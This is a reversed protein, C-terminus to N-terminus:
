KSKYFRWVEFIEDRSVEIRCHGTQPQLAHLEQRLIKMKQVLDRKYKPLPSDNDALCADDGNQPNQCPPPVETSSPPPILHDSLPPPPSQGIVAGASTVIAPQTSSDQRCFCVFWSFQCSACAVFYTQYCFRKRYFHYRLKNLQLDSM